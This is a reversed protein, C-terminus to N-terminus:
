IIGMGSVQEKESTRVLCKDLFQKYAGDTRAFRSSKLEPECILEVSRSQESFRLSIENNDFRATGFGKQLVPDMQRKIEQWNPEFGLIETVLSSVSNLLSQKYLDNPNVKYKGNRDISYEKKDKDYSNNSVCAEYAMEARSIPGMANLLARYDALRSKIEAPKHGDLALRAMEDHLLADIINVEKLAVPISLYLEELFEEPANMLSSM